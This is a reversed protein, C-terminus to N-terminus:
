NTLFRKNIAIKVKKYLIREFLTYWALSVVITILLDLIFIGLQSEVGFVLSSVKLSIVVYHILYFSFSISGFHLVTKNTLFWSLKASDRTTIILVATILSFVIENILGSTNISVLGIILPLSILVFLNSIKNMSSASLRLALEKRMFFAGGGLIFMWGYHFPMWHILLWDLTNTYGLALFVIAVGSFISFWFALNMPTQKLFGRTLLFGILCYFFVEINLSWEVGIMTNSYKLDFSALYSMHVLLNEISVKGDNFKDAWSNFQEGGLNIYVFILLLIPFYPLSIRSIRILLFRRLTYSGEHLQYFITFGSIVFFMQVGYKGFNVFTNLFESIDRLGGGGSHILFVLFVAVARLGTIFETGDYHRDLQM